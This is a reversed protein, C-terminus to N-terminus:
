AQGAAISTLTKSLEFRELLHLNRKALRIGYEPASKKGEYLKECLLADQRQWALSPILFLSPEGGDRFLGVAALLNERLVFYEKRFFIYNSHYVAKVQVDYYRGDDTRLVVDIGRDDVEATFVSMGWLTFEMKFYYEAYRGLQLHNLRSWDHREMADKPEHM